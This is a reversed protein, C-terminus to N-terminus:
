AVEYADFVPGEKCVRVLDGNRMEAVCGLCAGLGCAMFSELSVQCSLGYQMALSAVAHLMPYPGCSYIVPRSAAVRNTILDTILGKKGRSGDETAAEVQLGMAKLEKVCLLETKNRAGIFVSTKAGAGNQTITQALFFLPAIGIGGAVLLSPSGEKWSFGRGLPGVIDLRGGKKIATLLNTGKGIVRYLIDITRSDHVAHISFPRRLLPDLTQGVRLMLFQGPHAVRAIAPVEIRLRYVGPAAFRNELVTVTVQDMKSKTGRVM